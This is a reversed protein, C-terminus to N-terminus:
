QGTSGDITESMRMLADRQNDLFATLAARESTPAATPQGSTM